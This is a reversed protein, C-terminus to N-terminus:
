KSKKGDNKEAASVERQNSVPLVNQTTKAASPQDIFRNARIVKTGIAILLTALLLMVVAIKLTMKM